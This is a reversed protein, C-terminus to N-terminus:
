RYKTEHSLLFIKNELGGGYGVLKGDSGIVSHCPIVIALPNKNNAMGVARFAKESDVQKAIDGYSATAGYPIRALAQWVKKQFDTGMPRLPVDFSMREGKFYEKLQKETKELLPTNEIIYPTNIGKHFSVRTLFGDEEGLVLIGIPSHYFHIKELVFGGNKLIMCGLDRPQAGLGGLRQLPKVWVKADKFKMKALAYKLDVM